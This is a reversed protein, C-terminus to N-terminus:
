LGPTLVRDNESVELVKMEISLFVTEEPSLYLRDYVPSKESWDRGAESLTPVDAEPAPEGPFLLRNVRDQRDGMFYGFCGQKVGLVISKNIPTWLSMFVFLDFLLMSPQCNPLVAESIELHTYIHESSNVDPVIVSGGYIIAKSLRLPVQAVDDEGGGFKKEHKILNM